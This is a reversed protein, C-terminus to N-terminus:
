RDTQHQEHVKIVWSHIGNKNDYELQERQHSQLRDNPAKIEVSVVSGKWIILDLDAKKTWRTQTTSLKELHRQVDQALKILEDKFDFYSLNSIEGIWSSINKGRVHVHKDPSPDIQFFIGDGLVLSLERPIDDNYAKKIKRDLLKHLPGAFSSLTSLHIWGQLCSVCIVFLRLKESM